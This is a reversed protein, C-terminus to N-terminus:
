RGTRYHHSFANPIWTIEEGQIAVVDYRVWTNDNYKHLYRYYDAVSCIMKQKAPTVAEAASGKETGSRYKVEVFVYREGEMAVIDIEGSRCRFNREVIRYGQTELWECVFEEKKDCIADEVYECLTIPNRYKYYRRQDLEFKLIHDEPVGQSLLYEYFLDFLM